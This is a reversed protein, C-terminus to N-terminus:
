RESQRSVGGTAPSPRRGVALLHSSIGITTPESELTRAAQVVLAARDPDDLREDLDPYWYGPGEIGYRARPELGADALEPLLEDPHHFYATTFYDPNDTGNRHQGTATTVAAGAAFAPDGLAGGSLGDLLAAFRSIAAAIVPGGPRVVRRAEALARVRDTRETLHYLPGLLLVADVSADAADLRRADGITATVGDTPPDVVQAVHDPVPDVVHVTHGLGALWRAYVGTGGGVDLIRAPGDPLHRVLLEQTRARELRGHARELRVGEDTMRYHALIEPEIGPM